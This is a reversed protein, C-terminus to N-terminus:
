TPSPKGSINASPAVVPTDALEILKLAVPHAPMRVGVKPLGATVIDPVKQSKRLVITLPGPWVAKILKWANEPVESVVLELQKFSSIHVILPNDLPRQKIEYVRRVSAPNFADAGLGYVTETPFVVLGGFRLIRACRELIDTSPSLPDVKFIETM